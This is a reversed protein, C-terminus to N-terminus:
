SSKIQGKEQSKNEKRHYTIGRFHAMEAVQHPTPKPGYKETAKDVVGSMFNGYSGYDTVDLCDFHNGYYRDNCMNVQENGQDEYENNCEELFVLCTSEEHFEGCPRCYPMPRHDVLNTTEFPNPPRQDNQPPRRQWKDNPKHQQRNNGQSREVTILRNQLANIQNDHKMDLQKILETLEKIGDSSSTQGEDRKKKDENVKSSSGRNFGPINSKRAELMNKEIRVAMEQAESLTQPDKDRLAYRMEGEFAEIYYILIAAAPPKVDQHLNKVLNSFKENFEVVTENEKKHSTTLAGLQFHHEKQDGWRKRFEDILSNLTGFKNTLFDEFWDAVNGELSYVFLTMKVDEESHGRCYKDICQHFCSIHAQASVVNNRHFIPLKDIAKEPVDHPAGQIAAFNLPSLFTAMLINSNNTTNVTPQNNTQFWYQIDNLAEERLSELLSRTASRNARRRYVQEPEPFSYLVGRPNRRTTYKCYKKLPTV